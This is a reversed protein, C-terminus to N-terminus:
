HIMHLKAQWIAGVRVASEECIRCTQKVISETFELVENCLIRRILLKRSADLSYYDKQIVGDFFGDGYLARWM